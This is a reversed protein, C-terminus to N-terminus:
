RLRRISCEAEQGTSSRDMRRRPRQCRPLDPQRPTRPHSRMRVGRLRHRNGHIRKRGARRPDIGSQGPRAKTRLGSTERTSHLIGPGSASREILRSGSRGTLDARLNRQPQWRNAPHSRRAFQHATPCDSQGESNTRRGDSAPLAIQLTGRQRLRRRRAASHRRRMHHISARM